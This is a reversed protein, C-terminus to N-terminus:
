AHSMRSILLLDLIVYRPSILSCLTARFVLRCGAKPTRQILANLASRLRRAAVCVHFLDSIVEIPSPSLGAGMGAGRMTAAGYIQMMPLDLFFKKVGLSFATFLM